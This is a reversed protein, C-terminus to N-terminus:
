GGHPEPTLAPPDGAPADATAPGVWGMPPLDFAALVDAPDYGVQALLQASQAKSTRERDNSERDPPTPDDFDFELGRATGGFLPLFSHNLMARIRKLRPVVLWKSFMTEGADANARNVDDVTGLMPKPFGFAERIVERSVNRLEAFQMDRQSFKREVWKAEELVAVRHAQAVGQHQERWRATLEDYEDDSLHRDIEIIGGPEASNVFFNRNWEASYRIADLDVLVAQVPGMGRYPDLPNPMRVRVVEDVELPVKGGDPATYVYGALFRTAHPVPAVRDPRVPWLELPIARALDSRGVTLWGEGVLDVHQQFAEVMETRTMFPNPQNWVDLAAHSTVETRDEVSPGYVRRGDTKPRWLRWNAQAVASSTRNVIAFLTGVSGMAGMQLEADSRQATPMTLTRGATTGTFPVPAKALIGRVLSKM